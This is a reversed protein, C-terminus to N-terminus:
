RFYLYVEEQTVLPLAAAAYLKHARTTSSNQLLTKLFQVLKISRAAPTLNDIIKLVEETSLHEKYYDFFQNAVYPDKLAAFKLLKIKDDM